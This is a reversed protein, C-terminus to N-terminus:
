DVPREPHDTSQESVEEHQPLFAGGEGAQPPRSEPRLRAVYAFDSPGSPGPDQEPAKYFGVVWLEGTPDGAIGTLEVGAPATHRITWPNTGDCHLVQNRSAVWVNNRATGWMSLIRTSLAGKGCVTTPSLHGQVDREYQYLPGKLGGLWVDRGDPSLWASRLTINPFPRGGILRLSDQVKLTGESDMMMVIPGKLPQNSGGAMLIEGADNGTVAWLNRSFPDPNSLAKFKSDVLEGGYGVAITRGGAAANWVALLSKQRSQATSSGSRIESGLTSTSWEEGNFRYAAAFAESGKYERHGVAYAIGDRQQAVSYLDTTRGVVCGFETCNSAPVNPDLDGVQDLTIKRHFGDWKVLVGGRGTLWFEGSRGSTVARLQTPNAYEAVDRTHYYRQLEPDLKLPYPRLTEWGDQGQEWSLFSGSIVDTQAARLDSESIVCRHNQTCSPISWRAFPTREGGRGVFQLTTRRPVWCQCRSGCDILPLRRADQVQLVGPQMTEHPHLLKKEVKLDLFEERTPTDLAVYHTAQARLEVDTMTGVASLCGFSDRAEFLLSGPTEQQVVPDLTLTDGTYQFWGENSSDALVANDPFIPIDGSSIRLATNNMPVPIRWFLHIQLASHSQESRGRRGRNLTSVRDALFGSWASIWGSPRSEEASLSQPETLSDLIPLTTPLGLDVRARDSRRGDEEMDGEFGATRSELLGDGHRPWTGKGDGKRWLASLGVSTDEDQARDEGSLSLLALMFIGITSYRNPPSSGLPARNLTGNLTRLELAVDAMSSPRAGREKALMRLILAKVGDPFKVFSAPQLIKSNLHAQQWEYPTKGIFPRRGVLLEYLTIGLSYVDTRGDLEAIRHWQEPSMYAPTGIWEGTATQLACQDPDLIKAVGFDLLKVRDQGTASRCLFINQPKVDRHIVGRQHAAALAAAVEAGITLAQCIPLPLKLQDLRQGELLEMLLYCKGDDTEAYDYLEVVNPHRVRKVADAEQRFRSQTREGQLLHNLIKLAARQGTRIHQVAYVTGHSGSGLAGTKQWDNLWFRPQHRSPVSSAKERINRVAKKKKLSM